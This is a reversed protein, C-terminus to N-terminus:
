YGCVPLGKTIGYFCTAGVAGGGTFARRAIVYERDAICHLPFRRVWRVVQLSPRDPPRNLAVPNPASQRAQPTDESAGGTTTDGM